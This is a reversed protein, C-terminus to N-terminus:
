GPIIHMLSNWDMKQFFEDFSLIVKQPEINLGNCELRLNTKNTIRSIYESSAEDPFRREPRRSLKLSFQESYVDINNRDLLERLAILDLIVTRLLSPFLPMTIQEQVFFTGMRRYDHICHCINIVLFPTIHVRAHELDEPDASLLKIFHGYDGTFEGRENQAYNFRYTWPQDCYRENIVKHMTRIRNNQCYHGISLDYGVKAEAKLNPIFFLQHFDPCNERLIRQLIEHCFMAVFSYEIGSSLPCEGVVQQRKKNSDIWPMLNHNGSLITIAEELISM